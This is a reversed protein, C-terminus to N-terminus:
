KLFRYFECLAHEIDSMTYTTFPGKRDAYIKRAVTMTMHTSDLARLAKRAGPGLIVDTEQVGHCFHREKLSHFIKMALFPGIGPM